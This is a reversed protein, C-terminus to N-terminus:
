NGAAPEAADPVYAGDGSVGGRLLARFPELVAVGKLAYVYICMLQEDTLAIGAAELDAYSPEVLAYRAMSIMVKAQEDLPTEDALKANGSFLKQAAGMLPNPIHGLSAMNYISPRKAKCPFVEGPEWGPLVIEQVGHKAALAALDIMEGM